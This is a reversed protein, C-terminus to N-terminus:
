WLFDIVDEAPDLLQLGATGRVRIEDLEALAKDREAKLLKIGHELEAHTPVRPEAQQRQMDNLLLDALQQAAATDEALVACAMTEALSQPPRHEGGHITLESWLPGPIFEQFGASQYNTTVDIMDQHHGIRVVCGSVEVATGDSFWVKARCSKGVLDAM